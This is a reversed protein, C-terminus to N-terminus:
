DAKKQNVWKHVIYTFKDTIIPYFYLFQNLWILKVKFEWQFELSKFIISKKLAQPIIKMM